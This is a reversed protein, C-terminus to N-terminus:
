VVGFEGITALFEDEGMITEDEIVEGVIPSILPRTPTPEENSGVGVSEVSVGKYASLRTSEIVQELSSIRSLILRETAVQQLNIERVYELLTGAIGEAGSLPSEFVQKGVMVELLLKLMSQLQAEPINKLDEELHQPVEFSIIM